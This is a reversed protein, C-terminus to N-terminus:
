RITILRKHGYRKERLGTESIFAYNKGARKRVNM